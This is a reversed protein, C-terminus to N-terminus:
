HVQRSLRFLDALQRRDLTKLISADDEAVLDGALQRKKEMLYHIKEELTGATVLKYVQVPQRQGMRHVRATAQEEKAPNWWRDYHIVVQAGTLDIGTGGALLSACCVQCQPEHNFRQILRGRQRADVSGRLSIHDIGEHALWAEIIDLMSTFQSFIVVKLEADLSQRVLRTLEDWKGSAFQTWDTSKDLMALHNCIQKLRLITTLVHSFDSIKEGDEALNDMAQDVAQRYAAVQDDSLACIRIDESREPLDDLVQKRTRRLIFPSVFRQLSRRQEPSDARTFMNKVPALRFFAPLCISLLAALEATRNEVPTGTLGIISDGRLQSAAAHAGTARNKLTHMEDFLILRFPIEALQEVDRRMVGYTTVVIPHELAKQLDRGPGHYIAMSLDPFFQKQKEPWHSLVAAPCVLLFRNEQGALLAILALAQHTKGLGMDDALIGGLRYQQLQYLWATGHRQYGRLHPAIEGADPLATDPSALMFEPLTGPAPEEEMALEGIQAALALFESRTLRLRKGQESDVIRDSGLQHFWALRPDDLTIAVPGTLLPQGAETEKLLDVLRIRHNGIGYWGALYCWDEEEAYSDLILRDPMQVIRMELIEPAVDHHGCHLQDRNEQLFDTIGAAFPFLM